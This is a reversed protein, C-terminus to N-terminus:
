LEKEMAKFKSNNNKSSSFLSSSSSLPTIKEDPASDSKQKYYHRRQRLRNNGREKEDRIMRRSIIIINGNPEDLDAPIDAIKENKIYTLIKLTNDENERLIRAWQTLTKSMKGRVEGWWLKCCIRIWAGEIELPHEELDRIWDMPYFQFAPAKSM